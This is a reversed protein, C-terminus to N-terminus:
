LAEFRAIGLLSYDYYVWSSFIKLSLFVHLLSFMALGRRANQFPIEGEGQINKCCFIRGYGSIGNRPLDQVLYELTHCWWDVAVESVGGVELWGPVLHRPRILHSFCPHRSLEHFTNENSVLVRRPHFSSRDPPRSSDLSSSWSLSMIEITPHRKLIELGENISPPDGEFGVLSV